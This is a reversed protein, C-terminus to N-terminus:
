KDKSYEEKWKEKNKEYYRKSYRPNNRRWNKHQELLKEKNNKYRKQNYEKKDM